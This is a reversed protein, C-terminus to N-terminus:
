PLLSPSGVSVPTLARLDAKARATTSAVLDKTLHATINGLYDSKNDENTGETSKHNRYYRWNHITYRNLAVDQDSFYFRQGISARLWEFGTKRDLYRSTLILSLQNAESVRDHGTFENEMFFSGFSLDAYSSDFVPMKSQDRYPTYVYFLRPEFTQTADKGFWSSDREFILGSDLSFTPVIFSSNKEYGISERFQKDLNNLGTLNYAVGTVMAKPTVFWAAGRM